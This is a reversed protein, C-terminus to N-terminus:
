VHIAVSPYVCVSGRISVKKGPFEAELENELCNRTESIFYIIRPSGDLSSPVIVSVNFDLKNQDTPLLPGYDIETFVEALDCYTFMVQYMLSVDIYDKAVTILRNAIDRARVRSLKPTILTVHIKPM